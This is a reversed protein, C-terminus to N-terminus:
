GRSTSSIIESRTIGVEKSLITFDDRGLQQKAKSYIFAESASDKVELTVVAREVVTSERLIEVNM